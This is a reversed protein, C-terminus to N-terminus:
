ASDSLTICGNEMVYDRHAAKLALNANQEVLFVTIQNEITIRKIIEFLQRLILPALGLSPDDLLLLSPRAMIARSIALM